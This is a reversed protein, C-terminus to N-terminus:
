RITGAIKVKRRNHGRVNAGAEERTERERRGVAVKWGKREDGAGGAEELLVYVDESAIRFPPHRPGLFLLSPSPFFSLSLSLSFKGVELIARIKWGQSIAEAACRGSSQCGSKREKKWGGGGGAVADEDGADERGREM